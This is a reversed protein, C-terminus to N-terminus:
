TTELQRPDVSVLYERRSRTKRVKQCWLLNGKDKPTNMRRTNKRTYSGIRDRDRLAHTKEKKITGDIARCGTLLASMCNSAKPSEPWWYVHHQKQKPHNIDLVVFFEVFLVDGQQGGVVSMYLLEDHSPGPTRTGAQEGGWREFENGKDGEIMATIQSPQIVWPEKEQGTQSAARM